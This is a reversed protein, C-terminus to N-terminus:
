PVDEEVVVADEEALLPMVMGVGVGVWDPMVPLQLLM